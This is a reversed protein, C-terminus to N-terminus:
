LYSDILNILEQISKPYPNPPNASILTGDKDILILSPFGIFNYYKIFPHSVGLGDTYLNIQENSTYKGSQLGKIWSEKNDNVNVSIFVIDEINQYHHIVNKLEKAMITCPLCGTFWLDLVIIKGHFDILKVKKGSTDSFDFYKVLSGRLYAERLNELITKCIKNNVHDTVESIYNLTESKRTVYTLFGITLLKEKLEGHYKNVIKNYLEDFSFQYRRNVYNSFELNIVENEFLAQIFLASNVAVGEKPVLNLASHKEFYFKKAIPVKTDQDPSIQTFRLVRLLIRNLDGICDYQLLELEDKTINDKYKDLIKMRRQYIAGLEQYLSELHDKYTEGNNTGRKRTLDSSNKLCEKYLEVQCQLKKGGKGGFELNGNEILLTVSDNPYFRYLDYNISSYQTTVRNGDADKCTFAILFSRSDPCQISTVFRGDQGVKIKYRSSASYNSFVFENSYVIFNIVGGKNKIYPHNIKGEIHVYSSNSYGTTANM